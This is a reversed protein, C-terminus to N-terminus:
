ESAPKPGQEEACSCGAHTEGNCRQIPAPQTGALMRSVVANGQLRQLGLVTSPTLAGKAPLHNAAESDPGVSPRRLLAPRAGRAAFQGM